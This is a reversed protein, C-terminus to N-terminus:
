LCPKREGEEIIQFLAQRFEEASQASYGLDQLRQNLVCLQPPLVAAQRLMSEDAFAEWPPADIMVQGERLIIVREAYDAVSDMDHSIMLITTGERHLQQLLKMIKEVGVWDLGTTPEDIVLIEPTLALVSAVAIFQREGKSLTYPHVQRYNELGTLALAQTIREAIETRTFGANKLGFELEKEVSVSFIQHDPNQFVYGVTKALQATDVDKINLGKVIVEGETPRLLGNIHKALTTKGAGNAGALAVFEGKEINLDIGQVGTQGSEFRHVLQKIQILASNLPSKGAEMNLPSKETEKEQHVKGRAPPEILPVVRNQLSSRGILNRILSEAEAVDLPIDQGEIWGRQWFSWGLLSVPLPKIGFEQLLPINRFLKEPAGQWAIKGHKLVIVEHARHLIEESSHEVVLITRERECCLDDLTRYVQFRGEPDLESAPEDMVLLEPELALVGAIVLRQKEGGSLEATSRQDYGNLRVKALAQAVRQQIEQLPVGFNRPGFAVDEGVTRGIIQSEADQLVLGVQKALDQVRVERTDKGGIRVEGQLEGQLFQPILGNLCLSLTTKGAGTPGMLAIFKGKAVALSVQKLSEEEARPYRYSVNRLEIVTEM